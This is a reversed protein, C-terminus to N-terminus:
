REGPPVRTARRIPPCVSDSWVRERMAVPDLNVVEISVERVGLAEGLMATAAGWWAGGRRSYIGPMGSERCAGGVQHASTLSGNDEM